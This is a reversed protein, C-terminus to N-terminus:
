KLKFQSVLDELVAAQGSMEQSAAASEQATGSNRAVVQAVQEIGKNIQDIAVTQEESSRAIEGVISSNVNIGTVIEALSEATENAISVGYETKEISNTILVGTDKAADASKSALSRVEEAVIAFGKGHQGARAAEVAANLALINTQFAIDDILKIIKGISRSSEGIDKVASVMQEMQESGKEANNKITNGLDHASTALKANEKTKHAIEAISCSFEEVVSAQETTGHALTQSGDAIQKAATSVQESSSNIGAFMKSLSCVMRQLSLGM